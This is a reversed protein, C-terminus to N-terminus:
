SVVGDVGSTQQDRWRHVQAQLQEHVRARNGGVVIDQTILDNVVNQEGDYDNRECEHPVHEQM